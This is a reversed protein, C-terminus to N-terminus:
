NARWDGRDVVEYLVECGREDVLVDRVVVDRGASERLDRHFDPRTWLGTRLGNEPYQQSLIPDLFVVRYPEPQESTHGVFVDQAGPDSEWATDGVDPLLSKLLKTMEAQNHRRADADTM